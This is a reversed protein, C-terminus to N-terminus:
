IYVQDAGSAGAAEPALAMLELANLGAMLPDIKARGSAEKTILVANGKIEVKANGVCWAMMPQGGHLLQRESLLVEARKIVGSLRYGQSVTAIQEAPFGAELLPSTVAKHNAVDVGIAHRQPLLGADAVVQARAVLEDFADALRPVICLDGAEAIDQLRAAIQPRDALVDEHVWARFWGLLRGTGRERGLVALGLLDDLGGGDVGIVAVESRRLLEPLDLAPDACSAWWKAGRWADSHLAVGIEVNLHQSAWTRLEAEGKQAAEDHLAELRGGDISRGWNPNVMHWNRRDMWQAQDRQMAEPFEYLIPLLDGTTRGDRIARARNLEARFAGVPPEDSQTTIMMMFAEPYAIMGGRLQTLAKDARPQKACVHLEDILVGAPKQGTLVKPDFSMIELAAGSVLHEIRKLHGRVHLKARKVPCLKIAGEIAAFALEASDQTPGALIFKAARRRNLLLATLMILGGATTKNNKKPVLALVQRIRREGEPSVSGFLARVLDCTWDDGLEGLTPTGIVDALHMSRYVSLAIDAQDRWLPLGDPILPRRDRLRDAWDPCSLDWAM